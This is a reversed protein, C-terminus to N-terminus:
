VHARGIELKWGLLGAGVAVVLMALVPVACCLWVVIMTAWEWGNLDPM